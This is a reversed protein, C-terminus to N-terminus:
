VDLVDFVTAYFKDYDAAQSIKLRFASVKDTRKINRMATDKLKIGFTYM